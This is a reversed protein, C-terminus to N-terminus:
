KIDVEIGNVVDESPNMIVKDNENIGALIEIRDHNAVGIEVEVEKVKNKEVIFVYNKEAEQKIANTPLTDVSRSSTIVEILMKFGPKLNIKDKVKVEIPYSASLDDELTTQPLDNLKSIEGEWEEDLVAESTLIVAQERNIKLADYESVFGEVVLDNLNGITIFAEDTLTDDNLALVVGEIEASVVLANLQEAHAEKQLQLQELDINLQKHRLSLDDHEERLFEDDKNKDIEKDIAQHDKKIKDLELLLSRIQLALQKDELALQKNEYRLLDDGKKVKDGKKVFVEEIVGRESEKYITQAQNLRLTGPTIIKEEIMEISIQDVKVKVKTPSRDLLLNIIILGIVFVAIGIIMWKKMM